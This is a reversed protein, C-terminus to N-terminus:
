HMRSLASLPRHDFVASVVIANHNPSKESSFAFRL